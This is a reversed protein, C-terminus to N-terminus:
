VVRVKVKAKKGNKTKVTITATGKKLARVKGNKDVKAVKKNSSSWTLTTTAYEPTLKATLQLKEGKEMTVTGTRDLEVKTPSVAVVKVKVSAKKGNDTNVTVTTTGPKVPTVVGNDVTAVKPKSSQWTLATQADSPTVKAKLTLKKGMKLKVTGSKDLKVKTPAVPEPTATPEATPEGTPEM